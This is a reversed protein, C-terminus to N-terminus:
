VRVGRVALDWPSWYVVYVEDLVVECYGIWEGLDEDVEYDREFAGCDGESWACLRELLNPVVFVQFFLDVPREAGQFHEVPGDAVAEGWVQLYSQGWYHGEHWHVNEACHGLLGLEVRVWSLLVPM